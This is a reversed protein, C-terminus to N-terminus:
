SPFQQVQRKCIACISFPGLRGLAEVVEGLEVGILSVIRLGFRQQAAGEGNRHQFEIRGGGASDSIKSRNDLSLRVYCSDARDVQPFRRDNSSQRSLIEPLAEMRPVKPMAILEKAGSYSETLDRRSASRREHLCEAIVLILLFNQAAEGLEGGLVVPLPAM